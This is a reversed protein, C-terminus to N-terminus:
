AAPAELDEGGSEGESLDDGDEQSAHLALLENRVATLWAQHPAVDPFADLLVRWWSPLAMMGLLEDPLWEYMWEATESVPANAAARQLTEAFKEMFAREEASLEPQQPEVVAAPAAVSALQAPNVLQATSPTTPSSTAPRPRAPAAAVPAAPAAPAADITHPVRLPQVPQMPANAGADKVISVVSGALTLLRSTESEEKDAGGGPQLLDQAERLERLGELLEKVSSKPEAAPAGNMGFAERMSAILALTEQMQAAPNPRQTLAEVIAQQTAQIGALVAALQPNLAEAAHAAREPEGTDHPDAEITVQPKAIVVFRKSGPRCGYLRIEYTGAGWHKRIAQFGGAEFQAPQYDACYQLGNEPHVRWLQIRTRQEPDTQEGILRMIREVPPEEAEEEDDDPPAAAAALATRQAISAPVAGWEQIVGNEDAGPSAPAAAAAPPRRTAM